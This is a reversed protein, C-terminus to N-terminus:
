ERKNLTQIPKHKWINKYCERLDPEVAQFEELILFQIFQM